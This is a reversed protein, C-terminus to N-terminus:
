VHGIRNEDFHRATRQHFAPMATRNRHGVGIPGGYQGNAVHRHRHKRTRRDLRHLRQRQDLVARGITAAEAILLQRQGAGRM